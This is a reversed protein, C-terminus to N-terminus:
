AGNTPNIESTTSSSEKEIYDHRAKEILTDVEEESLLRGGGNERLIRIKLEQSRLISFDPGQQKNETAIHALAVLARLSLITNEEEYESEHTNDVSLTAWKVLPEMMKDAHAGVACARMPYIAGSPNIHFIIPGGDISLGALIVDAALPRKSDSRTCDHIAEAIRIALVHCPIPADWVYRPPPSLPPMM